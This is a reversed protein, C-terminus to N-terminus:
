RPGQPEPPSAAPQAPLSDDLLLRAAADMGATRVTATLKGPEAYREFRVVAAITGRRLDYLGATVRLLDQLDKATPQSEVASLLLWRVPQDAFEAEVLRHLAPLAALM